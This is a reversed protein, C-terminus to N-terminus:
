GSHTCGLESERHGIEGDLLGGGDDLEGRGAGGEVFLVEKELVGAVHDLQVEDVLLELLGEILVLLHKLSCSRVRRSEIGGM